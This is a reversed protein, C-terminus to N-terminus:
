LVRAWTRLCFLLGKAQFPPCPGWWLWRGTKEGTGMDAGAVTPAGRGVAVQPRLQCSGMDGGFQAQWPGWPETQEAPHGLSQSCRGPLGTDVRACAQVDSSLGLCRTTAKDQPPRSQFRPPGAARAPLRGARSFGGRGRQEGLNTDTAKAMVALQQGTFTVCRPEEQPRRQEQSVGAWVQGGLPSCCGVGLM